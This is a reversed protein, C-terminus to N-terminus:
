TSQARQMTQRPLATLQFRWSQLLCLIWRICFVQDVPVPNHWFKSCSDLKGFLRKNVATTFCLLVDGTVAFAKGSNIINGNGQTVNREERM